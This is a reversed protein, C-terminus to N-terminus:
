EIKEAKKRRFRQLEGRILFGLVFCLIGVVLVISEENM